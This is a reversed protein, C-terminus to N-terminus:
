QGVCDGKRNKIKENETQHIQRIKKKAWEDALRVLAVDSIDAFRFTLEGSQRTGFFEGPGRLELDKEAIVFGDTTQCLIEMRKAFPSEADGTKNKPKMLPSLLLCYAKDAGRGVRGRLQHLQSLGFREANEVFMVTANPVNVGVEIVTTSVLVDTKHAAFDTMIADKEAPKMKGHIYAVRAASLPTDRLSAAYERASALEDPVGEPDDNEALPCVIYAQHGAAVESAIFRYVRTRMETGVAYTEVPKRGKPLEGIVSIDLDCYLIMALTRPIPTASMVVTHPKLGDGSKHELTSRQRVGFRHQEDTVTLALRRFVVNDEILAHTGIVLQVSGDALGTLAAQKESAKMGGVLLATKVGFAALLASLEEYHQRALIGTPAMLAAQAGSQVAAYVAAAAVVTKGCGVDGQILRRAPRTYAADPRAEMQKEEAPSAVATMDKLLDQIALKQAHTLTFPLRATFARMDPYKLRIAKGARAKQGLLATRVKFTYIEEFAMRRRANELGEADKPFHLACLADYRNPFGNQSVIEADLTEIVDDRYNELAQKMCASLIKQTLGAVLPYIPVFPPLDGGAAREFEPSALSIGRPTRELTGYFRFKEGVKFTDKLFPRNFFSVRVSGTDDSAAFHQVTLPRGTKSKLRANVLPTTVTLWFSATEGDAAALVEKVNGRNQYARPYYSLLDAICRVGAEAFLRERATSVGKLVTVPVTHLDKVM